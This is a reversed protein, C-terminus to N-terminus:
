PIGPLANVWSITLDASSDVLEVTFDPFADVIHWQGCRDAFAIVKEVRLDPSSGVVKVKIDAGASVIKVAGRLPIGKYSCSSRDFDGAQAACAAGLLACALLARSLARM